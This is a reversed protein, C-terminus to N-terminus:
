CCAETLNQDFTWYQWEFYHIQFHRKCFPPLIMPSTNRTTPQIGSRKPQYPKHVYIRCVNLYLSAYIRWYVLWWQNLYHSTEQETGNESGISSYQQNSGSLCVETFGYAFNMWSFANSINTQSIDAIKDRGWHQVIITLKWKNRGGDM